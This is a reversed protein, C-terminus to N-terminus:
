KLPESTTGASVAVLRDGERGNGRMPKRLRLASRWRSVFAWSVRRGGGSAAGLARSNAIWWERRYSVRPEEGNGPLFVESLRAAEGRAITLPPSTSQKM